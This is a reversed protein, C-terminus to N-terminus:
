LSCAILFMGAFIRTRSLSGGYTRLQPEGRATGLAGEIGHCRQPSQGRLSGEHRGSRKPSGGIPCRSDDFQHSGRHDVRSLRDRQEEDPRAGADAQRSPFRYLRVDGREVGAM